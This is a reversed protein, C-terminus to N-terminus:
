IYVNNIEIGMGYKIFKGTRQYYQELLELIDRGIKSYKLDYDIFESINKLLNNNIFQFDFINNPVCSSNEKSQKNLYTRIINNINILDMTLFRSKRLYRKRNRFAIIKNIRDIQYTIKNKRYARIIDERFKPTLEFKFASFDKYIRHIENYNLDEFNSREMIIDIIKILSDKDCGITSTNLFDSEGSSILMQRLVSSRDIVYQPIDIIDMNDAYIKKSM